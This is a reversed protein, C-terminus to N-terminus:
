EIMEHVRALSSSPIALGLANRGNAWRYEISVTSGEQFGAEALGALFADTRPRWREPTASGLFGVVRVVPTQAATALPFLAAGALGARLVDRRRM